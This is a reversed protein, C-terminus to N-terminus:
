LDFGSKTKEKDYAESNQENDTMVQKKYSVFIRSKWFYRFFSHIFFYLYSLRQRKFGLQCSSLLSIIGIKATLSCSKAGVLAFVQRNQPLLSGM